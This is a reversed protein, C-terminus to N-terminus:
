VRGAACLLIGHAENIVARHAITVDQVEPVGAASLAVCGIGRDIMPHRDVVAMAWDSFGLATARRLLVGLFVSSVRGAVVQGPSFRCAPLAKIWISDGGSHSSFLDLESLSDFHGVGILVLPAFGYCPRYGHKYIVAARKRPICIALRQV